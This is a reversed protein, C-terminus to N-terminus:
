LPTVSVRVTAAGSDFSKQVTIVEVQNGLPVIRVGDANVFGNSDRDSLEVRLTGSTISFNGLREWRVGQFIEGSPDDRQDLDVTGEDVAGDYVTYPADKAQWDQKLWTVFVEYERPTLESFEWRAIALDGEDWNCRHDDQYAPRAHGHWDPGVESYGPDGDDILTVPQPPAPGPDVSDIAAAAGLKRAWADSSPVLYSTGEFNLRGELKSIQRSQTVVLRTTGTLAIGFLALAVVLELYSFGRTKRM